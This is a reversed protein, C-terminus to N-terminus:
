PGNAIFLLGADFVDCVLSTNIKFGSSHIKFGSLFSFEKEGCLMLARIVPKIERGRSQFCTQAGHM